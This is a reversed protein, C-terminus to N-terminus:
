HCGQTLMGQLSNTCPIGNACVYYPATTGCGPVTNQWQPTTTDCSLVCDIVKNYEYVVSNVCNYRYNGMKDPQTFWATQNPHVDPDHDDCDGGDFDCQQTAATYGDGDCDCPKGSPCTAGSSATTTSASTSTASTTTQAGTGGSSSSAGKGTSSPAQTGSGGGSGSFTVDPFCALM